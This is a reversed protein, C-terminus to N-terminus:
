WELIKGGNRYLWIDLGGSLGLSEITPDKALLHRLHSLLSYHNEDGPTPTDAIGGAYRWTASDLSPAGPEESADQETVLFRSYTALLDTHDPSASTLQASNKLIPLKGLLMPKQEEHTNEPLLWAYDSKGPAAPTLDHLDIHLMDNLGQSSTPDLQGSSTFFVRGVITTRTVSESAATLRGPHALLISPLVVSTVLLLLAVVAILALHKRGLHRTSSPPLSGGPALRTDDSRRPEGAQLQRDNAEPAALQGDREDAPSSDHHM